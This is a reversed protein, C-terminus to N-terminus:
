IYGEARLALIIILINALLIAVFVILYIWLSALASIGLLVIGIIANLVFVSGGSESMDIRIESDSFSDDIDRYLFTGITFLAGVILMGGLLFSLESGFPVSEGREISLITLTLGVLATGISFVRSFLFHGSLFVFALEILILAIMFVFVSVGFIFLGVFALIGLIILLLALM